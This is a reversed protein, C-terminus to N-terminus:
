CHICTFGNPYNMRSNLLIPFGHTTFGIIPLVLTLPEKLPRGSKWLSMVNRSITLIIRFSWSGVSLEGVSSRWYSWIMICSVMCFNAKWSNKLKDVPRKMSKLPFPFPKKSPIMTWVLFLQKNLPTTLKHYSFRQFCILGIGFCRVGWNRNFTPLLSVQASKAKNTTMSGSFFFLM